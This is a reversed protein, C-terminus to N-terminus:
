KKVDVAKSPNRTFYNATLVYEDIYNWVGDGNLDPRFAKETGSRKLFAKFNEESLIEIDGTKM